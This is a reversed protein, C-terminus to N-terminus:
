AELESKPFWKIMQM